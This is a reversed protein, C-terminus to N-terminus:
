GQGIFSRVGNGNGRNSHYGMLVVVAIIATATIAGTRGAGATYLTVFRELKGKVEM